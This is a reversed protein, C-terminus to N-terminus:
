QYEFRLVHALHVTVNGTAETPDGEVLAMDLTPVAAAITWDIANSTAMQSLELWQTTMTLGLASSNGPLKIELDARGGRSVLAPNAEPILMVPVIADITALHLECGAPSAFGLSSLPVGIPSPAGFAAVALSLPPGYAFFHAYAGPLLSREEVFSWTHTPGGYIGGGGGLDTATGAIDEFEADAMWWNANQGAVPAGVIDICLTGGTYVFPTAFPIRVTDNPSWAVTNGTVPPSTPLTVQGQFVQIPNTGVNQAFTSSCDLPANAALSLTVTLDATGGLYTENAANRRLELATLIRGALPSLHAAGVLTQQRVDRSAGAIWEFSIADTTAYAAPVVLHQPAQACLQLTLLAAAPLCYTSHNTRM